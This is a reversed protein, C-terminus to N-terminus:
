LGFYGGDLMIGKKYPKISWGMYSAPRRGIVDYYIKYLCGQNGCHDWFHVILEPENNKNLDYLAIDIRRNNGNLEELLPFDPDRQIIFDYIKPGASSLSQWRLGTMAETELRQAIRMEETVQNALIEMRKNDSEDSPALEGIIPAKLTNSQAWAPYGALLVAMAIFFGYLHSM